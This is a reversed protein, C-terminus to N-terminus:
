NITGIYLNNGYALEWDGFYEESPESVTVEQDHDFLVAETWPADDDAGCIKIDMEIGNGFKITNSITDNIGMPIICELCNNLFDKTEANLTLSSKFVKM